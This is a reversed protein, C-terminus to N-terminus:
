ATAGLDSLMKRLQKTAPTVIACFYAERLRRQAVGNGVYGRAGSHLMAHHASRVAAEGAQLRTRIVEIFYDKGPDFPTRTLSFVATEMQELEELIQEPQVDLYQNIHGLPKRMKLMLDACSRIMGFAMGAQLLIFGARIKPLYDDIPDALVSEAPVFVQKFNLGYTRTGGLAVFDVTEIAKLDPSDFPVIAMVRKNQQEPVEFVVAMQHGPGLNSVWPLRGSVAYGGSVPVGKLNLQEIGFFTKMPNSLGTGGLVKGGALKIGLSQHLSTNPSNFVYWTIANQCWMCFATSLCYEGAIGMAQISTKIDPGDGTPLHQAYAGADGFARMVSEPYVGDADITRVLPALQNSAIERISSLLAKSDMGSTQEPKTGPQQRADTIADM